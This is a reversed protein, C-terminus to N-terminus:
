NKNNIVKFLKTRLENLNYPKAIVESFGYKKFNAMVPDSSYGSSVIAKTFPDKKLLEKITELGGMGGPITLDLIVLDFPHSTKIAKSYKELAEHGEAAFEVDYGFKKLIKGTADRIAAEDDMLLIKGKADILIKESPKKRVVKKLSAPLYFQAATGKGIESDITIFGDHKTIISYVSALGLGNGTKKTTFYPDFIKPLYEKSIGIGRDEISIKVYKGPKLPTNSEDSLVINEAKIDIVGGAPMAQDANIVLNSLVQNIQGTDAHVPWLNEDIDYEPRVNSGRLSFNISEQILSKISETKKIPAGGRSFTLLQQTLKKAEMSAREVDHLLQVAEENDSKLSMKALFINGIIATLINNFDHAIGGALLGVSDLKRMKLVEEELKMKETVDRLVLVVGIIQDDSDMIPAGSYFILKQVKGRSLLLRNKQYHVVKRAKLVEDVPSTCRKNSEEDIIQFVDEFFKGNIEESPFECLDLAAQNYLQIQGFINTTVVADAISRLTVSLREKEEFLRQEIRRRSTIDFITYLIGLLKGTQDEICTTNSLAWIKTDDHKKLLIEDNVLRGKEKLLKFRDQFNKKNLIFDQLNMTILTDLPYGLLDIGAKNADIFNLDGDLLFISAISNHFLSRYREESIKLEEAAKKQETVNRAIGRIAVASGNRSVITNRYEFILRNKNVDKFEIFGYSSKKELIEQIYSEFSFKQNEAIIENVSRGILDAPSYGLLTKVAENIQLIKGELSHIFVIDTVNNFLNSYKEESQRLQELKEQQDKLFKKQNFITLAIFGFVLVLLAANGLVFLWWFVTTSLPM